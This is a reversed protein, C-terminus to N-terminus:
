RPGFEGSASVFLGVSSGGYRKTKAEEACLIIYTCDTEVFQQVTRDSARAYAGITWRTGTPPRIWSVGLRLQAFPLSVTKADSRETIVILETDDPPPFFAVGLDLDAELRAAGMGVGSGLTFAPLVGLEGAVAVGLVVGLRLPGARGGFRVDLGGGKGPGGGGFVSLAAFTRLESPPSPSPPTPEDDALAPVALALVWAALASRALV